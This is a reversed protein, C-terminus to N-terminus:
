FDKTPNVARRLWMLGVQLNTQAQALCRLEEVHPELAKDRPLRKVALIIKRLEAGAVAIRVQMEEKTPVPESNVEKAVAEVQGGTKIEVPEV